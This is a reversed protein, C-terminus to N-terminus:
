ANPSADYKSQPIYLQKRTSHIVGVYCPLKCGEPYGQMLNYHERFWSATAVIRHREKRDIFEIMKKFVSRSEDNNGWFRLCILYEAEGIPTYLYVCSDPKDYTSREDLIAEVITNRRIFKPFFRHYSESNLIIRGVEVNGIYDYISHESAYCYLTRLTINRRKPRLLYPPIYGKHSPPGNYPSASFEALYEYIDSGKVSNIEKENCKSYGDYAVCKKHISSPMTVFSPTKGRRLFLKAPCNPDACYFITGRPYSRKIAEDVSILSKSDRNEDTYATRM